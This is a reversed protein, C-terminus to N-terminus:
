IHLNQAQQIRDMDVYEPEQLPTTHKLLTTYKINHFSTHNNRNSVIICDAPVVFKQPM